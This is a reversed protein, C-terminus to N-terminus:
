FCLLVNDKITEILRRMSPILYGANQSDYKCHMALILIDCTGLDALVIRACDKAPPPCYGPIEGEICHSNALM